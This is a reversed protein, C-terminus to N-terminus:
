RCRACVSASTEGEQPTPDPRTPNPPEPPHVSKSDFWFLIRSMRRGDDRGAVVVVVDVLNVEIGAAAASSSPPSSSSRGSAARMM